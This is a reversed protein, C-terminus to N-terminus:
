LKVDNDDIFTIITNISNSSINFKKFFVKKDLEKKERLVYYILSLLITKSNYKQYKELFDNYIRILYNKKIKNDIIKLYKDINKPYFIKDETLKKVASNYHKDTIDLLDFLENIDVEEKFIIHAKYISYCLLGMKVKARTRTKKFEHLFIVKSYNKIERNRIPLNDIFKMLKDDRVEYYSYNSWKHIRVINKWKYSMPIFSKVIFSINEQYTPVEKTFDIVLGCSSCCNWFNNKDYIIRKNDCCPPNIPKEKKQLITDLYNTLTNM